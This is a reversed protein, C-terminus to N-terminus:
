KARSNAQQKLLMEFESIVAKRLEPLADRTIYRGKQGYKELKRIVGWAIAEAQEREVGLQRMAWLTIAERGAANVKHPRAGGEIIGAHPADNQLRKFSRNYTWANKMQGTDVPTRRVVVARGRLGGRQIARDALKPLTKLRKKLDKEFEEPTMRITM